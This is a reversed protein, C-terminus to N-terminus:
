IAEGKEDVGSENYAATQQQGKGGCSQPSPMQEVRVATWHACSRM